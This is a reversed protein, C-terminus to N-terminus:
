RGNRLRGLENKFRGPWTKNTIRTPNGTDEVDLHDAVMLTFPRFPVRLVGGAAAVVAMAVMGAMGVMGMGDTRTITHAESDEM